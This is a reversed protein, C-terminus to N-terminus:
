TSLGISRFCIALRPVIGMSSFGKPSKGPPMKLKSVIEPSGCEIQDHDM